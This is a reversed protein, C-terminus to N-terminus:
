SGARQRGKGRSTCTRVCSVCAHFGHMVCATVKTFNGDTGQLGRVVHAAMVATLHPDEGWTESGRGWRPDRLINM